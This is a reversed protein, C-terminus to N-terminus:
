EPTQTGSPCQSSVTRVKLFHTGSTQEVWNKGGDTTRLIIGTGGFEFGVVTGNNEDTFSVGYLTKTTGSTQPVWSNGGDTTRLITGQDGVATGNNMDTFSVDFLFETGPNAQPIWHDGGDTTRFIESQGFTGGVATGTDSDALRSELCLKRRAAQSLLGLHKRRRHDQPHRRRRWCGDWQRQRYIFGCALEAGNWNATDDLSRWGDTTRLITGVEGVATGNNSDTFSVAWLTQTTGSSQITWNNGGDTTRVITGYYGVAYRSNANVLRLAAFITGRHSLIKGAGSGVQHLIEM